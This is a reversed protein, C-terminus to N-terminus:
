EDSEDFDWRVGCNNCSGKAWETYQACDACWSLRAWKEGTARTWEPHVSVKITDLAMLRARQGTGGSGPRFYRRVHLGHVCLDADTVESKTVVLIM